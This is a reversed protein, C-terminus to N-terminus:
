RSLSIVSQSRIGVSTIRSATRRHCSSIVSRNHTRDNRNPRNGISGILFKNRGAKGVLGTKDPLATGITHSGPHINRSIKIGINSIRAKASSCFGRSGKSYTLCLGVQMSIKIPKFRNFSDTAFVEAISRHKIHCIHKSCTIAAVPTTPQSCCGQCSIRGGNRTIPPM